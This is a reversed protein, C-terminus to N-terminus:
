NFLLYTMDNSTIIYRLHRTQKRYLFDFYKKTHKTPINREYYQRKIM